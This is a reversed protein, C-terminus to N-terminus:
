RGAASDEAMQEQVQRVARLVLILDLEAMPAIANVAEDLREPAQMLVWALVSLAVIGRRTEAEPLAFAAQLPFCRVM